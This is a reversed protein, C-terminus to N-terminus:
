AGKGEKKLKEALEPREYLLKLMARMEAVEGELAEIRGDKKGQLQELQSRLRDVEEEEVVGFARKSSLINLWPLAKRYEAKMFSEDLYAKNYDLPDVVHGMLFEAVDPSAPSKAWLTRFLDRMEHRNKGYRTKASGTPKIMGTKRLHYDWYHKIALKSIPGKFQDLFIAKDSKVRKTFYNRIENIADLGIFSFYPRENRKRKRGPLEIRIPDVGRELDARLKELGNRNWFDFESLSLGAQFMSMWVARYVPKSANILTLVNDPTLNGMTKPFDGRIQFTPDKPLEARNHAFFSRIASYYKMKTNYPSKMSLIWRQVLELVDYREGNGADRQHKVLQDPTFESFQEGKEKLWEMFKSFIYGNVKATGESLRSAWNQVGGWGEAM